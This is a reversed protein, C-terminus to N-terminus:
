VGDTSATRAPWGRCMSVTSRRPAVTSAAERGTAPVVHYTTALISRSSTNAGRLRRARHTLMTASGARVARVSPTQLKDLPARLTLATGSQHRLENLYLVSDGDRRVLTTEASESPTPWRQILPFLFREVPTHLLIAARGEGQRPLPVVYDLHIAGSADRYLESRQVQGSSLALPLLRQKIEASIDAHEGVTLSVRGIADLLVTDYGYVQRLAHLRASVRGLAADSGADRLFRAASQALEQDRALLEANAQGQALWSEIQDTKLAAIASLDAFAAERAQPSNLQFISYGLLPAILSLGLFLAILGGVRLPAVTDNRRTGAGGWIRLLLYLLLSTVAVFALGKVTGIWALLMSDHVLQALLRDSGFIWLAAFIAYALVIKNRSHM